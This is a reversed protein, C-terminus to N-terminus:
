GRSRRRRAAFGLAVGVGLLATAGFAPLAWGGSPARPLAIPAFGMGDLHLQPMLADRISGSAAFARARAARLAEAIELGDVLGAVLAEVLRLSAGLMLDDDAALVAGAGRALLASALDAGAADGRRVSTRGTACACLVLLRARVTLDDLDAAFVADGTRGDGGDALLLGTDYPFTASQVGHALVIGVPAAVLEGLAGRGAARGSHVSCAASAVAAVARRLEREGLQLAPRPWASDTATGADAPGLVAVAPASESGTAPAAVSAGRLLLPLSPAYALACHLGLWPVAADPWMLAEFPLRALLERGAILARPRRQLAAALEPPLVWPAAAAAATALAAADGDRCAAHMAHVRRRLGVDGPLPRAGIADADVTLVMSGKPAPLYVLLAGGSPVLRRQVEAASGAPAGSRRAASGLSEAILWTDLCRAAGDVPDALLLARWLQCLVDRRSGLQLFAMGGTQVPVARWQRCMEEFEHALEAALAAARERRDGRPDESAALEDLRHRWVALRVEFEDASVAGGGLWPALLRAADARDGADEAMTALLGTALERFAAPAAADTLVEGAAARAEESRELRQLAIARVLRLRDRAAPAAFSAGHEQLLVDATQLASEFAEAMLQRDLDILHWAPDDAVAAPRVLFLDTAALDLMGLRVFAEARDRRLRRQLAPPAASLLRRRAELNAWVADAAGARLWREFLEEQVAVGWDRWEGDLTACAALLRAGLEAAAGDEALSATLLGALRSLARRAAVDGSACSPVLREIAEVVPALADRGPRFAAALREAAAM